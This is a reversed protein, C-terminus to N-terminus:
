RYVALVARLGLVLLLLAIGLAAFDLSRGRLRTWERMVSRLGIPAHVSVAVVFIAYLAFLWVNGRTRDLVEGATLGGRVAYLITVIHASASFLLVVASLRQAAFLVASM